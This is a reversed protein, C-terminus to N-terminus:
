EAQEKERHNDLIVKIKNVFEDVEKKSKEELSENALNLRYKLNAILAERQCLFLLLQRAFEIPIQMYATKMHPPFADVMLNFAALIEEQDIERNRIKYSGISENEM